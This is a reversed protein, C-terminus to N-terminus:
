RTLSLFVLLVCGGPSSAGSTCIEGYLHGAGADAAFELPSIGLPIHGVSGISAPRGRCSKSCSIGVAEQEAAHLPEWFPLSAEIQIM